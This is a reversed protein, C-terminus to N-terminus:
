LLFRKINEICNKGLKRQKDKNTCTISNLCDPNTRLSDILNSITNLEKMIAIASVNSISPICCLMIEGINEQTINDKKTKKVVTSYEARIDSINETIINNELLIKAEFAPRIGKSINREIKDAFYIISEASEQVSCSRLVSFGKFFNLSAISSNVINKETSTRLQSFMGEILYVINHSHLESSHKLRYSQEEYRGDKISALLDNLSKREIICLLVNDDSEILIDGLHIMQKSIIIKSFKDNNETIISVCKDYLSQEREDIIIKM